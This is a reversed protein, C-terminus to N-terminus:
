LEVRFHPSMIKHKKDKVARDLMYKDIVLLDNVFASHFWFQFLVEKGM